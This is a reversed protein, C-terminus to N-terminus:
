ENLCMGTAENSVYEPYPDNFTWRQWPSTADCPQLSLQQTARVGANDFLNKNEKNNNGREIVRRGRNVPTHTHVASHLTSGAAYPMRARVSVSVNAWTLDGILTVPDPDNIWANPGPRKPAMQALVGDGNSNGPPVIVSFSGGQDAFFRPLSDNHTYRSSAGVDFADSYPLPFPASPPVGTHNGKAPTTLTTITYISGYEVDILV